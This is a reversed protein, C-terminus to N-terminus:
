FISKNRMDKSAKLIYKKYCTKNKNCRHKRHVSSTALDLIELIKNHREGQEAEM